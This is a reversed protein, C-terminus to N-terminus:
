SKFEFPFKSIVKNRIEWDSAISPSVAKNIVKSIQEENLKGAKRLHMRVQNKWTELERHYNAANTLDNLKTEAVLEMNTSKYQLWDSLIWMRVIAPNEEIEEFFCEQEWGDQKIILEMRSKEVVSFRQGRQRTHSFYESLTLELKIM